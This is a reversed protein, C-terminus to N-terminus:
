KGTEKRIEEEIREKEKKFDKLEDLEEKVNKLEKLRELIEDNQDINFKKEEEWEKKLIEVYEKQKLLIEDKQIKEAEKVIGVLPSVLGHINKLSEQNLWSSVKTKVDNYTEVKTFKNLIIGNVILALMLFIFLLLAPVNNGFVSSVGKGDYPQPLFVLLLSSIAIIVWSLHWLIKKIKVNM